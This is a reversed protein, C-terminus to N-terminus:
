LQNLLNIVDKQGKLPVKQIDENNINFVINKGTTTLERLKRKAEERSSAAFHDNQQTELNLYRIIYITM